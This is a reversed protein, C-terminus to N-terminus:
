EAADLREDFAIVDVDCYRPAFGTRGDFRAIAADSDPLKRARHLTAALSQVAADGKAEPWLMDALRQESVDRGGLAALARILALPRWGADRGL